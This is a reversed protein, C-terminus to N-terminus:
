RNILKKLKNFEYIDMLWCQEDGSGTPINEWDFWAEERTHAKIKRLYFSGPFSFDRSLAFWLSKKAM